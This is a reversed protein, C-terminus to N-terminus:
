ASCGVGHGQCGMGARWLRRVCLCRLEDLGAKERRQGEWLRPARSPSCSLGSDFPSLSSTVALVLRPSLPPGEADPTQPGWPDRGPGPSQSLRPPTTPLSMCHPPSAVAEMLPPRPGSAKAGPILPPGPVSGDRASPFAHSHLASLKAEVSQFASHQVNRSRGDRVCKWAIRPLEALHLGRWDQRREM